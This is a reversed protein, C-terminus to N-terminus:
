LYDAATEFLHFVSSPDMADEVEYAFDEIEDGSDLRSCTLTFVLASEGGRPSSLDYEISVNEREAKFAQNLARLATNNQDHHYSALMEAVPDRADVFPAIDKTVSVSMEDGLGPFIEVTTGESGFNTFTYSEGQELEFM